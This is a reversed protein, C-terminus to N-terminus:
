TLKSGHINLKAYPTLVHGLKGWLKRHNDNQIEKENGPMHYLTFYMEEWQLLSECMLFHQKIDRLKLEYPVRHGLKQFM